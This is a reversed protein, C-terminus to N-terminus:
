SLGRKHAWAGGGGDGREKLFNKEAACLVAEHGVSLADLLMVAPSTPAISADSNFTKKGAAGLSFAAANAQWLAVFDQPQLAPSSPPPPPAHHVCMGYLPHPPYPSPSLSPPPSRPSLMYLLSLPNLNLNFPPASLTQSCNRNRTPHRRCAIRVWVKFFFPATEVSASCVGILTAGVTSDALVHSRWAIPM